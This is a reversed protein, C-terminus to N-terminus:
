ETFPESFSRLRDAGGAYEAGWIVDRYDVQALSLNDTLGPRDGAALHLICRLVREREPGRYRYLESTIEFLSEAGYDAVIRARIDAPLESAHM